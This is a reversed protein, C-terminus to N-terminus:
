QWEKTIMDKPNESVKGEEKLKELNSEEVVIYEVTKKLISGGM